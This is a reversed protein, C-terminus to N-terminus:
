PRELFGRGEFIAPMAKEIRAIRTAAQKAGGIHFLYSRQRGPTLAEFARKFRPDARLKASLEAPVPLERPKTEVKAGAKAAAVAERVYAKITTAKAAIEKASTFKMVRAAQVQGLQVLLHKPDKLLAGQFFGLACYEKFGQIIVVNSDDVMYCPKGWKCEERLDFGALIRKLEAIEARWRERYAMEM